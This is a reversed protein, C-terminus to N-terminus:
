SPFARRTWRVWAITRVRWFKSARGPILSALERGLALLFVPDNQGHIVLAPVRLRRADARADTEILEKVFGAVAPGDGFIRLFERVVRRQVEDM